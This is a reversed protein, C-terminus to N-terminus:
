YCDVCLGFFLRPFSNTGLDEDIRPAMAVTSYINPDQIVLVTPTDGIGTLGSQFALVNQVIEIFMLPLVSVGIPTEM